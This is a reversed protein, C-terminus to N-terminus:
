QVNRVAVSTSLSMAEEHSSGATLFLRVLVRDGNRRMSFLPEGAPNPRIGSAVPQRNRSLVADAEAWRYRVQEDPDDADGDPRSGPSAGRLDMALKLGPGESSEPVLDVGELSAEGTPNCGGMRIERGMYWLAAALSQRTQLVRDWHGLCRRVAITSEVLFGVLLVAIALAPVIEALIWGGIDPLVQHSAPRCPGKSRRAKKRPSRRGHM